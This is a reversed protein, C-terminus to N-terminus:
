LPLDRSLIIHLALNRFYMSTIHSSWYRAMDRSQNTLEYVNDSCTCLIKFNQTKKNRVDINPELQTKPLFFM